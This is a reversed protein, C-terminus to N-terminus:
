QQQSANTMAPQSPLQQQNTPTKTAYAPSMNNPSEQSPEAYAGGSQGCGCASCGGNGCSACGCPAACSGSQCNAVPPDYDHCSSCSRCGGSSLGAISFLTALVFAFRSMSSKGKSLLTIRRLASSHAHNSRPTMFSLIPPERGPPNAFSLYNHRKHRYVAQAATM